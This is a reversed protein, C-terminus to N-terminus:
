KPQEQQRAALMADAMLCKWRATAEAWYKVSEISRHDKPPETRMLMECVFGPVGGEDEGYVDTPKAHAIFYDRLSMGEFVFTNPGSQHNSEGPFAPGGDNIAESM